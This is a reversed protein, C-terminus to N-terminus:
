DTLRAFVGIDFHGLPLLKLVQEIDKRRWEITMMASNWTYVTRNISGIKTTMRSLKPRLGNEKCYDYVKRSAGIM